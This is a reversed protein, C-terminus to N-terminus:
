LSMYMSVFVIEKKKEIMAFILDSLGRAFSSQKKRKNNKNYIFFFTVKQDTIRLSSQQDCVQTRRLAALLGALAVAGTGLFLYDM